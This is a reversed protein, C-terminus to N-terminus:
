AMSGVLGTGWTPLSGCHGSYKPAKWCPYGGHAPCETQRPVEARQIRQDEASRPWVSQVWKIIFIYLGLDSLMTPSSGLDLDPQHDRHSLDEYNWPSLLSLCLIATVPQM